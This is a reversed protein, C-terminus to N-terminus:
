VTVDSFLKMRLGIHIAPSMWTEMKLTTVPGFCQHASRELFMGSLPSGPTLEKVGYTVTAAM